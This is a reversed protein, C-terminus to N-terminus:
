LNKEIYDAIQEFSSGNDNMEALREQVAHSIGGAFKPRLYGAPILAPSMREDGRFPKDDRWECGQIDALVGLCCFGDCSRLGCEDQQYKGSRLARIWMLKLDPTM